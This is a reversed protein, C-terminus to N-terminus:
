LAFGQEEQSYYFSTSFLLFSFVKVDVGAIITGESGLNAFGGNDRKSEQQSRNRTDTSSAAAAVACSPPSWCSASGHLLLGQKLPIQM